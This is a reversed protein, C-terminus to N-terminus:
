DPTLSANDEQTAGRPVKVRLSQVKVVAMGVVLRFKPWQLIYLPSVIAHKSIQTISFILLFLTIKIDSENPM